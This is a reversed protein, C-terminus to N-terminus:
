YFLNQLILKFELAFLSLMFDYFKIFWCFFNTYDISQNNFRIALEITKKYVNSLLMVNQIKM